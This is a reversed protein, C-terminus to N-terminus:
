PRVRNELIYRLRSIEQRLNYVIYSQIENVNQSSLKYERLHRKNLPNDCQDAFKLRYFPVKNRYKFLVYKVPLPLSRAQTTDSRENYIKYYDYCRRCFGAKPDLIQNTLRLIANPSSINLQHLEAYREFLTVWKQLVYFTFTKLDCVTNTNYPRTPILPNTQRTEDVNVDFVYFSCNFGTSKITDIVRKCYDKFEQTFRAETKPHLPDQFIQYLLCTQHHSFKRERVTQIIPEFSARYDNQEVIHLNSNYVISILDLEEKLLVFLDDLMNLFTRNRVQQKLQELDTILDHYPVRDRGNEVDDINIQDLEILYYKDLRQIKDLLSKSLKRINLHTYARNILVILTEIPLMSYVLDNFDVTLIKRTSINLTSEIRPDPFARFYYYRLIVNEISYDDLLSIDGSDLRDIDAITLRDLDINHLDKIMDKMRMKSDISHYSLNTNFQNIFEVLDFDLSSALEMMNLSLYSLDFVPTWSRNARYAEEFHHKVYEEFETFDQLDERANTLLQLWETDTIHRFRNPEVAQVARLVASQPSLNNQQNNQQVSM